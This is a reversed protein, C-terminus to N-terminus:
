KRGQIECLYGYAETWDTHPCLLEGSDQMYDMYALCAAPLDQLRSYVDDYFPPVGERDWALKDAIFLAMDYEDADAKLTTHCEVPSLIRREDIGFYERAAIGSMRQHLLFHYRGEAECLQMGKEAAYAYMDDAKIVASIDHLLAAKRCIDEDLGHMRAIRANMEAVDLVHSLTKPRRNIELLAKVGEEVNGCYLLLEIYGYNGFIM